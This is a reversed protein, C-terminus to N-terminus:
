DEEEESEDDVTDKRRRKCARGELSDPIKKKFNHFLHNSNLWLLDSKTLDVMGEENQKGVIVDGEWVFLSNPDVKYKDSTAQLILTQKPMAVKKKLFSHYRDSLQKKTGTCKLGNTKCLDKLESLKYEM